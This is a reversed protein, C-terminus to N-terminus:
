EKNVPIPWEKVAGRSRLQLKCGTLNCLAQVVDGNAIIPQPVIIVEHTIPHQQTRTGGSLLYTVADGTEIDLSVVGNVVSGAGDIISLRYCDELQIGLAEAVDLRGEVSTDLVLSAM